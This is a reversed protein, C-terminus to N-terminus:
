RRLGREKVYLSTRLEEKLINGDFTDWWDADDDQTHMGAHFAKEVMDAIQKMLEDPSLEVLGDRIREYLPPLKEAM